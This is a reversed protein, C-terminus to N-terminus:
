MDELEELKEIILNELEKIDKNYYDKFVISLFIQTVMEDVENDTHDILYNVLGKEKIEKIDEEM